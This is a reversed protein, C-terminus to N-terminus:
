AYKLSFNTRSDFWRSFCTRPNSDRSVTLINKFFFIVSCILKKLMGVKGYCNNTSAYCDRQRRSGRAVFTKSKQLRAGSPPLHRPINSNNKQQDEYFNGDESSTTEDVDSGTISRTSTTVSRLTYFYVFLKFFHVFLTFIIWFHWDLWYKFKYASFM